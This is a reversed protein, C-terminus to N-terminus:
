ILDPGWTNYKGDVLELISAAGLAPMRGPQFEGSNSCSRRYLIGELVVLVRLGCHGVRVGFEVRDQGAWVAAIALLFDHWGCGALEEVLALPTANNEFWLRAVAADKTGIARHFARWHLLFRLFISTCGSQSRGPELRNASGWAGQGQHPSVAEIKAVGCHFPFGDAM